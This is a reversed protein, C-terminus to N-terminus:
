KSFNLWIGGSDLPTLKNLSFDVCEGAKKSFLDIGDDSADVTPIMVLSIEDILNKEFFLTNTLGGGELLLKKIGFLSHLKELM